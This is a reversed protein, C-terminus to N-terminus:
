YEEYFNNITTPLQYLGEFYSIHFINWTKNAYYDNLLNINFISNSIKKLDEINKM